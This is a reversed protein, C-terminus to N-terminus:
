RKKALFPLFQWKLARQKSILKMVLATKLEFIREFMLHTHLEYGVKTGGETIMEVDAFCTQKQARESSTNLAIWVEQM